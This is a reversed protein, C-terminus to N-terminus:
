NIVSAGSSHIILTVLTIIDDHAVMKKENHNSEHKDKAYSRLCIFTQM